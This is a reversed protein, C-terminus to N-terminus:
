LARYQVYFTKSAGPGLTVNGYLIAGEDDSDYPTTLSVPNCITGGTFYSYNNVYTAHTIACSPKVCSLLMGHTDNGDETALVTHPTSIWHGSLSSNPDIKAMRMLKFTRAVGSNNKVIMTIKVEKDTCNKAYKQTLQWIGDTTTRVITLPALSTTVAAGWGSEGWGGEFDWYETGGATVDCLGYGERDDASLHNQGAPSEFSPMNGHISVCYALKDAGANCSYNYDCTNNASAISFFGGGAILLIAIMLTVLKLGNDKM